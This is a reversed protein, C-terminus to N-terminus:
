ESIAWDIPSVGRSVLYENARSFPRSGFFGNYASLPSPHAAEIVMHGTNHLLEKKARAPRGFLMFVVPEPKEDVAKIIADTFKEWGKGAHSMAKHAEVTLITNLLLVGQKAWSELCGHSPPKIGLDAELEKYMNVLSPPVQVGKQVSFCLGHAQGPEHYPDQGLIVAKVNALPTYHLANFIDESPPYVPVRSYESKVFKYLERYYDKKFEGELAKAWDNSIAAM